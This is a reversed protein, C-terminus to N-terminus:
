PAPQSEIRYRLSMPTGSRLIELNVLKATSFAGYLASIDAKHALPRGNVSKVVDGTQLGLIPALPQAQADLVAIGKEPADGLGRAWDNVNLSQMGGMLSQRSVMREDGGRGSDAHSVNPKVTKPKPAAVVVPAVDPTVTQIMNHTDGPPPTDAPLIGVVAPKADLEIRERRGRNDVVVYDGTVEVLRVGSDLEGGTKVAIPQQGNREFIAAAPTSTAIVGRLKVNLTSPQMDGGTAPQGFWRNMASVDALIPRAVAVAPAAVPLTAKPSFVLWFLSALLWALVILLLANLCRYFWPTAPLSVIM